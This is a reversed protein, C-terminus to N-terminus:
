TRRGWEGRWPRPSPTRSPGRPRPPQSATAPSHYMGARAGSERVRGLGGDEDAKIDEANLGVELTYGGVNRVRRASYLPFMAIQIDAPNHWVGVAVSMPRALNSGRGKPFAVNSKTRIEPMPRPTGSSSTFEDM